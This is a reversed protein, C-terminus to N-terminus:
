RPDSVANGEADVASVSQAGEVVVQTDAESVFGAGLNDYCIRAASPEDEADKCGAALGLVFVSGLALALVKSLKNLIGGKRHLAMREQFRRGKRM